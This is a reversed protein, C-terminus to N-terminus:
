SQSLATKVNNALAVVNTAAGIWNGTAVSAVISAASVLVVGVVTLTVKLENLKKLTDNAASVQDKLQGIAAKVDNAMAALGVQGVYNAMEALLAADKALKKTPEDFPLDQKAVIDNAVNVVNTLQTSLDVLEQPTAM